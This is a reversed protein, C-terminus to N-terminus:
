NYLQKLPVLRCDDPLAVLPLVAGPFASQILHLLLAEAGEDQPLRIQCLIGDVTLVNQVVKVEEATKKNSLDNQRSM